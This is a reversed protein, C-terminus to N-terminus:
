VVTKRCGKETKIFYIGKQPLRIVANGNLNSGKFILNGQLDYVYVERCNSINLSDGNVAIQLDESNFEEIGDVSENFVKKFYSWPPTQSYLGISNEIVYLTADRYNEETFTTNEIQPPFVASCYINRLGTCYNFARGGIKRINEGIRITYLSTNQAFADEYIEECGQLVVTELARCGM